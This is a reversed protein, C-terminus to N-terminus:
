GKVLYVLLLGTLMLLLGIGRLTSDPLRFLEGLTRKAGRPSLFWPIGEVILVLGFIVLLSEANM